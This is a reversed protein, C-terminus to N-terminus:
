RNLGMAFVIPWAEVTIGDASMLVRTTNSGPDYAFTFQFPQGDAMFAVTYNNADATWGTIQVQPAVAAMLVLNALVQQANMQVSAAEIGMMAAYQPDVALRSQLFAPHFRVPPASMFQAWTTDREALDMQPARTHAQRPPRQPMVARPPAVPQPPPSPQPTEIVIQPQPVAVAVEVRPRFSPVDIGVGLIGCGGVVVAVLGALGASGVVAVRQTSV